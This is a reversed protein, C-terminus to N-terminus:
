SNLIELLNNDPYIIKTKVPYRFYTDNNFIIEKKKNNDLKLLVIM